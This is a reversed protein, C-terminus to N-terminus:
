QQADRAGKIAKLQTVQGVMALQGAVEQSAMERIALESVVAWRRKKQHRWMWFLVFAVFWGWGM